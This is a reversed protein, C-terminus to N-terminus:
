QPQSLVAVVGSHFHRACGRTVHRRDNHDYDGRYRARLIRQFRGAKKASSSQGYEFHQRVQQDVFGSRATPLLDALGLRDCRRFRGPAAQFDHAQRFERGVATRHRATAAVKSESDNLLQQLDSIGKNTKDEDRLDGSLLYNALNLSNENFNYQINTIAQMDNLTAKVEDRTSYQHVVSFIDVVLLALMIALVAGFGMYLKKGITM